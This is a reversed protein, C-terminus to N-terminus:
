ESELPLASQVYRSQREPGNVLASHPMEGGNVEPHRIASTQDTQQEKIGEMLM